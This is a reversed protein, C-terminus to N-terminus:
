YWWPIRDLDQHFTSKKASTWVWLVLFIEGPWTGWTVDSILCFTVCHLAMIGDWIALNMPGVHPGGPDQRDWIPGMNAGHVKSDPISMLFFVWFVCSLGVTIDSDSTRAKNIVANSCEFRPTINYHCGVTDFCIYVRPCWCCYVYIYIYVYIYSYMDHFAIFCRCYWWNGERYRQKQLQYSYRYVIIM